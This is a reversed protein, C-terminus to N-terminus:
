VEKVMDVCYFQAHKHTLAHDFYDTLDSTSNLMAGVWGGPNEPMENPAWGVRIIFAMRAPDSLAWDMIMRECEVKAWGYPRDPLESTTDPRFHAPRVWTTSSFIIRKVSHVTMARLLNRTAAINDRNVEEQTAKDTGVGALHLVAASGALLNHWDNYVSLDKEPGTKKDIGVVTWGKSKFVPSVRSGINGAYGTVVLRKVDTPTSIAEATGALIAASGTAGALLARRRTFELM